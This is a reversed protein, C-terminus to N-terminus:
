LPAYRALYERLRLKRQANESSMYRVTGFIPRQPGWPRDYRGLVWFIGSYSNPDEGDLAYKNNLDVLTELAQQANPSWQLVKKGWIMRLYNHILGEQLLQNQAANWLRDHTEASELQTRDYLVPRPDRRHQGLTAQAWAPLSEFRDYDRRQACMNFGLERWTVLQDLFAEASPSMGWWGEREGGAKGSLRDPSWDEAQCIKHFIQQASIHGAHLYPSLGSTANHDPHNHSEAYGALKHRLFDALVRGAAVSGGRAPGSDVNEDIPLDLPLRSSDALWADPVRPWRAQFAVPLKAPEPLQVRDLPHAEPLELLYDPLSKQLYRRFAFAVSYDRGAIRMPMLGNSDVREVLVDARVALTLADRVFREIPFDDAVVLCARKSLAEALQLAQGAERELFPYYSVTRRALYAANDAMGELVFRHGRRTAWRHGCNLTELVLLPKGLKEAWAAARQLAWNWVPRRASTMWYLVWSRQRAVPGENLAETRPDNPTPSPEM